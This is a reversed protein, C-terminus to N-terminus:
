AQFLLTTPGQGRSTRAGIIGVLGLRWADVLELNRSPDAGPDGNLTSPKTARLTTIQSWRCQLLFDRNVCSGLDLYPKPKVTYRQNTYFGEGEFGLGCYGM